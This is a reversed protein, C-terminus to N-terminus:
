HTQFSLGLQEKAFTVEQRFTNDNPHLHDYCRVAKQYSEDRLKQYAEVKQSSPEFRGTMIGAMDAKTQYSQGLRVYMIIALPDIKDAGIEEMLEVARELRYSAINRHLYDSFACYAEQYKGLNEPAIMHFAKGKHYFSELKQKERSPVNCGLVKSNISPEAAQAVNLLAAGILAALTKKM